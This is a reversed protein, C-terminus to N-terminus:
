ARLWNVSLFCSKMRLFLHSFLTRHATCSSVWSYRPSLELTGLEIAVSAVKGPEPQSKVKLSADLLPRMISNTVKFDYFVLVLM